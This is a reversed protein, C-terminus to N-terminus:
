KPKPVFNHNKVIWHDKEVTVLVHEIQVGGPNFTTEYAIIRFNGCEGTPLKTASNVGLLRRDNLEGLPLLYEEYVNKFLDFTYEERTSASASAYASEIDGADIKGLWANVTPMYDDDPSEPVSCLGSNTNLLGAPSVLYVLVFVALAGGARVAINTRPTLELNIFGPLVAAVGACAIALTVRSITILLPNHDDIFLAIVFLFILAIVGFTFAVIVDVSLRSHRRTSM